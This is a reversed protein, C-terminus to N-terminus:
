LEIIKKMAVFKANLNLEGMFASKIITTSHLM